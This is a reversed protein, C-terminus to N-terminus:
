IKSNITAVRKTDYFERWIQCSFQKNISQKKKKLEDKVKWARGKVKCM